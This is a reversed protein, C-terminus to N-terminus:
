ELDLLKAHKQGANMAEDFLVHWHHMNDNTQPSNFIEKRMEDRMLDFVVSAMGLKIAIRKNDTQIEILSDKLAQEAMRRAAQQPPTGFAFVSLHDSVMAEMVGSGSALAVADPNCENRTLNVACSKCVMKTRYTLADRTRKGCKVCRTGSLVSIM